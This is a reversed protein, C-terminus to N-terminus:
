AGGVRGSWRRCGCEVVSSCPKLTLDVVAACGCREVNQFEAVVDVDDTVKRAIHLAEDRLLQVFGRVDVRGEDVRVPNMIQELSDMVTKFVDM